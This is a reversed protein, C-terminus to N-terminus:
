PLLDEIKLGAPVLAPAYAHGFFERMRGNSRLVLGDRAIAVPGGRLGSLRRQETELRYSVHFRGLWVSLDPLVPGQWAVAFVLGVPSVYEQVRTGNDYVTEHVAYGNRSSSLGAAPADGLAAWGPRLLLVLLVAVLPGLWDTPRRRPASPLTLQAPM